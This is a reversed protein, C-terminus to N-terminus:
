TQDGGTGVGSKGVDLGLRHKMNEKETGHELGWRRQQRGSKDLEWKPVVDKNNEWKTRNNELELSM